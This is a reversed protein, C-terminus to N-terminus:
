KSAATSRSPRISAGTACRRAAIGMCTRAILRVADGIRLQTTALGEAPEVLQNV